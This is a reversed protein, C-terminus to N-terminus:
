YPAEESFDDGLDGFNSAMMVGNDSAESEDNDLEGFDYDVDVDDDYKLQSQSVDETNVTSQLEPEQNAEIIQDALSPAESTPKTVSIVEPKDDDDDDDESESEFEAPTVDKIQHTDDLPEEEDDAIGGTIDLDPSEQLIADLADEEIPQKAVSQTEHVIEDEDDTLRGFDPMTPSSVDSFDTDPEAFVSQGDNVHKLFSVVDNLVSNVDTFTGSVFEHTTPKDGADDKSQVILKLRSYTM